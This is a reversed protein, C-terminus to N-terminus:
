FCAKQNFRCFECLPENNLHPVYSSGGYIESLEKADSCSKWKLVYREAM